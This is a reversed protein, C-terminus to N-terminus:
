GHKLVDPLEVGVGAAEEVAFFFLLASVNADDAGLGLGLEEGAGPRDALGDAEVTHQKGDDADESGLHLLAFLAIAVPLDVDGEAGHAVQGIGFVQAADPVVVLAVEFEHLLVHAGGEAGGVVEAGGIVVGDVDGVQHGFQM